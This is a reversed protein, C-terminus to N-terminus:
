NIKENSIKQELLSIIDGVTEITIIESFDFQVNFEDQIEVMLNLHNMSDWDEVDDSSLDKNIEDKYNTFVNKFISELTTVIKNNNM